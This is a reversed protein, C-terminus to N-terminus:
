RPITKILSSHLLRVLRTIGNDKGTWNCRAVAGQIISIAIGAFIFPVQMIRGGKLAAEGALGIIILALAFVIWAAKTTGVRIMMQRAIPNTEGHPHAIKQLTSTVDCLKTIVLLVIVLYVCWTM